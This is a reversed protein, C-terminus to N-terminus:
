DRQLNSIHTSIQTKELHMALDNPIDYYYNKKPDHSICNPILFSEHIERSIIKHYDQIENQNSWEKYM